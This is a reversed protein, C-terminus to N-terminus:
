PQLIREERLIIVIPVKISNNKRKRGQREGESLAKTDANRTLPNSLIDPSGQRNM